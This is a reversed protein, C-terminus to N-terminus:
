RSSSPKAWATYNSNGGYARVPFSDFTFWDLYRSAAGNELAHHFQYIRTFLIATIGLEELYDLHETVGVLDGGKFGRETPPSEWPELHSPKVVAPSSAFRDPFIQYFVADKVWDPTKVCISGNCSSPCSTQPSSKSARKIM